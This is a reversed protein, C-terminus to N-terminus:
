VRGQRSSAELKSQHSERILKESPESWVVAKETGFAYLAEILESFDSKSMRSTHGGIVVLGGDLGPVLKQRKLAATMVDKWEESKLKQGHWIVQKSIDSLMPWMKRNQETSRRERAMYVWVPGSPLAMHALERIWSYLAPIEDVSTVEREFNV